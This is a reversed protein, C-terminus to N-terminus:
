VMLRDTEVTMLELQPQKENLDQRMKQVEEATSLLKQVGRQYGARLRLTKERETGLLMKYTRLLELYSTPTVYIHRKQKEMLVSLAIANRHLVRCARAM